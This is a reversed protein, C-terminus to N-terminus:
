ISAIGNGGGGVEAEDTDTFFVISPPIQIAGYKSGGSSCQCKPGEHSRRSRRGQAVPGLNERRENKCFHAAALGDACGSVNSSGDFNGLLIVDSDSNRLCQCATFKTLSNTNQDFEVGPQAVTLTSTIEAECTKSSSWPERM